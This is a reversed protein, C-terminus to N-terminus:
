KGNILKKVKELGKNFGKSLYYGEINTKSKIFQLKNKGIEKILDDVAIWKKDGYKRSASQFEEFEKEDMVKSDPRTKYEQEVIDM